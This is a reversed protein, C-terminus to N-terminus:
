PCLGSTQGSPLQGRTRVVVIYQDVSEGFISSQRSAGIHITVGARWWSASFSGFHSESTPKGVSKTGGHCGLKGEVTGPANENRLGEAFFKV